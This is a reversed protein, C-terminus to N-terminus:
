AGPRDRMPHNLRLDRGSGRDPPSAFVPARRRLGTAQELKSVFGECAEMFRSRSWGLERLEGFYSPSFTLYFVAVLPSSPAVFVGRCPMAPVPVESTAPHSLSSTFFCWADRTVLQAIKEEDPSLCFEFSNVMHTITAAIRKNATVLSM